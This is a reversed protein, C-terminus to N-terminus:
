RLRDPKTKLRRPCQPISRELRDLGEHFERKMRELDGRVKVRIDAMRAGDDTFLGQFQVQRGDDSVLLRTQHTTVQPDAGFAWYSGLDRAMPFERASAEEVCWRVFLERRMTGWIHPHFAGSLVRMEVRHIADM